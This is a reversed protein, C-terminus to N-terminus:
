TLSLKLLWIVFEFAPMRDQWQCSNVREHAFTTLKKMVKQKVNSVLQHSKASKLYPLGIM